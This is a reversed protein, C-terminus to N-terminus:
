KSTSLSLISGKRCNRGSISYMYLGYSSGITKAGCSTRDLATLSQARGLLSVSSGHSILM